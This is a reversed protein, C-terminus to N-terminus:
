DCWGWKTNVLEEDTIAIEKDIVIQSYDIDTEELFKPPLMEHEATVTFGRRMGIIALALGDYCFYGYFGNGERERKSCVSTAAM